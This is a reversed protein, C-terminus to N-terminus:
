QLGPFSKAWICWDSDKVVSVSPQQSGCFRLITMDIGYKRYFGKELAVYYGAFQAQPSWLPIMTCSILGTEGDISLPLFLSFFLPLMISLIRCRNM